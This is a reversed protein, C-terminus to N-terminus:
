TSLLPHDSSNSTSPPGPSIAQTWGLGQRGWPRRSSRRAYTVYCLGQPQETGCRINLFLLVGLRGPWAGSNRPRM